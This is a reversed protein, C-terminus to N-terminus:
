ARRARRRPRRAAEVRWGDHAGCVTSPNYQSLRTSCSPHACGRHDGFQELPDGQVLTVARSERLTVGQLTVAM